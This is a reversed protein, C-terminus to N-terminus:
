TRMGSIRDFVEICRESFRWNYLSYIEDYVWLAERRYEHNLKTPPPMTFPYGDLTDSYVDYHWDFGTVYYSYPLDMKFLTYLAVFGMTPIGPHKLGLGEMQLINECANGIEYPNTIAMHSEPYFKEMTKPINKYNHPFPIGLVALKPMTIDKTGINTTHMDGNLVVLDCAGGVAEQADYLGSRSGWNNFRIVIDANDVWMRDAPTVPGSGVICIKEADPFVEAMLSRNWVKLDDMM